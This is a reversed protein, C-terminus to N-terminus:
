DPNLDNNAWAQWTSRRAERKDADYLTGGVGTENLISACRAPPWHWSLRVKAVTILCAAFHGTCHGVFMPHLHTSNDLLTAREILDFRRGPRM